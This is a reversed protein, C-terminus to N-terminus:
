IARWFVQSLFGYGSGWWSRCVSGSCWTCNKGSAASKGFRLSKFEKSRVLNSSVATAVGLEILQHILIIRTEM